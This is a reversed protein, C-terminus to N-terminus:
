WLKGLCVCVCVSRSSMSQDFDSRHLQLSTKCRWSLTLCLSRPMGWSILFDASNAGAAYSFQLYLQLPAVVACMVWEIQVELVAPLMPAVPPLRNGTDTSVQMSMHEVWSQIIMRQCYLLLHQLVDLVHTGLYSVSHKSRWCDDSNSYIELIKSKASKFQMMQKAETLSHNEPCVENVFLHFWILYWM